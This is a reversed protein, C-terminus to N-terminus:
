IKVWEKKGSLMYVEASSIVFATSGMSCSPLNNLEEITDCIFEKIGYSIDGDSSLIKYM